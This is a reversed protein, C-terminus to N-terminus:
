CPQMREDSNDSNDSEEKKIETEISLRNNQYKNGSMRWETLCQLYMLPYYKEFFRKRESNQLINQAIYFLHPNSSSITRPIPEAVDLSVFFSVEASNKVFHGAIMVNAIVKQLGGNKLTFEVERPPTILPKEFISNFNDMMAGFM